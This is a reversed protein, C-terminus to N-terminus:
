LNAYIMSGNAIEIVQEIWAKSIRPNARGQCVTLVGGFRDVYSNGQEDWAYEGEGRVLAIPERLYNAVAPFSTRKSKL